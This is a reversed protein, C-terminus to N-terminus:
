RKMKSKIKDLTTQFLINQQFSKKLESEKEKQQQSNYINEQQSKLDHMHKTGNIAALLQEGHHNTITQDSVLYLIDHKGNERICYPNTSLQITFLEENDMAFTTHYTDRGNDSVNLITIQITPDDPAKFIVRSKSIYDPEDDDTIYEFGRNKYLLSILQIQGEALELTKNNTTM